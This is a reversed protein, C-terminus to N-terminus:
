GPLAIYCFTYRNLHHANRPTIFGQIFAFVIVGLSDLFRVDVRGVSVCM